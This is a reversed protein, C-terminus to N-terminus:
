TFVGLNLLRWMVAHTGVDFEAGLKQVLDDRASVGGLERSVAARLLNAPMLLEGAFANAEAEEAVSAITSVSDANEPRIDFDVILQRAGHLKWHGLEHAIVQRQRRGSRRSNLGIIRREGEHLLFGLEAGASRARAVQLGEARAIDEVPVPARSVDYRALLDRAEREVLAPTTKPM